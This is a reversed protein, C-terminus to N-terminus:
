GPLWLANPFPDQTKASRSPFCLEIHPPSMAHGGCLWRLSCHLPCFNCPSFGAPPLCQLLSAVLPICVMQTRDGSVMGLFGAHREGDEEQLCNTLRFNPDPDEVQQPPLNAPVCACAGQLCRQARSSLLCAKLVVIRPGCAAYVQM